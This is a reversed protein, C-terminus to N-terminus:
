RTGSPTVPVLLFRYSDDSRERFVPTVMGTDTGDFTVEVEDSFSARIDNVTTTAVDGKLVVMAPVASPLAENFSSPATPVVPVTQPPAETVTTAVTVSSRDFLWNWLQSFDLRALQSETGIKTPAAVVTVVDVAVAQSAAAIIEPAVDGRVAVFGLLGVLSGCMVVAVAQALAITASPLSVLEVPLKRVSAVVEGRSTEASRREEVREARLSARRVSKQEHMGSVFQQLSQEDIYWSRGVRTGSIKGERALKSLYDSTYSFRGALVASPVYNKGEITLTKSM